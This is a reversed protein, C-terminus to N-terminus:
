LLPTSDTATQIFVHNDQVQLRAKNQALQQRQDKTLVSYIKGKMGAQNDAQLLTNIESKQNDTLNLNISGTAQTAAVPEVQTQMEDAFLSVPAITVLGTLAIVAIKNKM